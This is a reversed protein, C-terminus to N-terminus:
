NKNKKLMYIRCTEIYSSFHVILSRLFFNLVTLTEFNIEQFSNPIIKSPCKKKNLCSQLNRLQFIRKFYRKYLLSVNKFCNNSRYLM